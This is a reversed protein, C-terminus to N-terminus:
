IFSAMNNPNDASCSDDNIGTKEHEEVECFLDILPVNLIISVQALTDATFKSRGSELYYYGNPSQYGLSTSIEKLTMKSKRIKKLKELNVTLKKM